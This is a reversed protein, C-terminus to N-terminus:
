PKQEPHEDVDSEDEAAVEVILRAPDVGRGRVHEVVVVKTLAVLRGLIDQVLEVREVFVARPGPQTLDGLLSRLAVTEPWEHHLWGRTRNVLIRANEDAAAALAEALEPSGVSSHHVTRHRIGGFIARVKSQQGEPAVYYDALYDLHEGATAIKAVFAGVDARERATRIPREAEYLRVIVQRYHYGTWLPGAGGHLVDQFAAETISLDEVVASLSFVWQTVLDDAPFLEGITM